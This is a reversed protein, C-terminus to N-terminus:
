FDYLKKLRKENEKIENRLRYADVKERNRENWKKQREIKADRDRLYKERNKVSMCQKCFNHLNFKGTKSKSFEAFTKEQKCNYCIKYGYQINNNLGDNNESM